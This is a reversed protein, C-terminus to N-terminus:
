KVYWLTVLARQYICPFLFCLIQRQSRNSYLTVSFTLSHVKSTELLNAYIYFMPCNHTNDSLAAHPNSAVPEVMFDPIVAKFM